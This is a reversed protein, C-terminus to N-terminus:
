LLSEFDFSYRLYSAFKLVLDSAQRADEHCLYAITDLTNYIFHPKIQARLFDQERKVSEEVKEKLIILTRVRAKLENIEFPKKIFDNIGVEFGKTLDAPNSRSTM